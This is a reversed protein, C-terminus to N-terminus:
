DHRVRAQFSMLAAAALAIVVSNGGKDTRKAESRYVTVLSLM